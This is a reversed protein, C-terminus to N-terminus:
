LNKPASPGNEQRTRSATSLWSKRNYCGAMLVMSQAMSKDAPSIKAM